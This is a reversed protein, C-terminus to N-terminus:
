LFRSWNILIAAQSSTLWGASTLDAVGAQYAAALRAKQPGTLSSSMKALQDCLAGILHDVGARLGPPLRSFKSSSEVFQKTLLCLTDPTAYVTFTVTGTTANGANDTASGTLTNVGPSFSYAPATLAACTSSALGSAATGNGNPPDAAVCSITVTQNITYRGANGTFSVTPPTRDIRVLPSRYSASNDARDTATVIAGIASGEGSLVIPSASSVSAVGSLADDATFGISVDTNNWGAANPAPVVAGFTVAPATRDIHVTLSMPTEQNSANDTAFYTVTTDGEVGVAATAAAGPVVTSAITQAGSASFTTQKVGSGGFEDMATLQISVNGNNWGAANPQPSLVALTVPPNNDAPGTVQVHVTFNLAAPGTAAEIAHLYTCNDFTPFETSAQGDKEVRMSVTVRLDHAPDCAPLAGGPPLLYDFYPPLELHVLAGAGSGLTQSSTTQGGPYTTTLIVTAGSVAAGSSGLVTLAVNARPDRGTKSRPILKAQELGEANYIYHSTLGVAKDRPDAGSTRQAYRVDYYNLTHSFTMTQATDIPHFGHLLFPVDIPAVDFLGDGDLDITLNPDGFSRRFEFVTSPNTSTLLNWLAGISMLPATNTYTIGRPLGDWAIIGSVESNGNRATLDWFLGAVALDEHVPGSKTSAWAKLPWELDTISAYASGSFRGSIDRAALTPLFTAFGEHMSDCTDPNNYGGHNTGELCSLDVQTYLHHTFEHWEGNLPADDDHAADLVGDRNEFESESTGLVIFAGNRKYYADDRPVAAGSVPDVSAFTYVRATAGTDATLHGKVWDVYQRMRFYINAMDDLRPVGDPPVSYGNALTDNPDFNFTYSLPQGAEVKFRWIFWVAEDVGPAYRIDFGPVCPDLCHDVLTAQVIYYTGIAVGDEFVYTGGVTNLPHDDILTTDDGRRLEVKMGKLPNGHGDSIDFTLSQPIPQWAPRQLQNQPLFQTPSGGNANVTWMGFDQGIYSCLTNEVSRVANRNAVAVIKKGDPSIAVYRYTMAASTAGGNIAASQGPCADPAKTLQVLSTGDKNIRFLESRTILHDGERTSFGDAAFVISQGDPSWSISQVNAVGTFAAGPVTILIPMVGVGGSMVCIGRRTVLNFPVDCVFALDGRSSWEPQDPSYSIDVIRTLGTGDVKVTYLSQEHRGFNNSVFSISRGDATWAPYSFVYGPPGFVESGVVEREDSGDKRVIEIVYRNLAVNLRVFALQTGDPSWAPYLQTDAPPLGFSGPDTMFITTPSGPGNRYSVYALRGNAGPFSARAPAAAGILMVAAACAHVLAMSIRRRKNAQLDM